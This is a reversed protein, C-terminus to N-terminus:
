TMQNELAKIFGGKTRNEDYIVLKMDAKPMWVRGFEISAAVPMASFVHLENNHGHEKKIDNLLKRCLIRFNSLQEPKRLFDNNPSDITLTWISTDEGLVDVIRTDDINASLSINLAVKNSKIAPESVSFNNEVTCGDDWSWGAPERLLQYVDVNPIDSILTGLEILLPQPALGFVSLHKIEGSSLRSRVKDNFQRNLHEKEILWYHDDSDVFSSNKLSLEIAQRQAPYRKPAMAFAAKEWSVPATHNGINAGYLLIHSQYEEKIDTLTEIREEHKRKMEILREVSHGAVDIIDILRHHTDCMLMLNSIDNKLKESLIDDGRPGTPKDGIIHAIYSTNFEAKTFDDAWLIRNCGEYQCRGAAKAWLIRKTPEPIYSVSM